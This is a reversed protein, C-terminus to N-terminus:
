RYVPRSIAFFRLADWSGLLGSGSMVGSRGDSRCDEAGPLVGDRVFGRSDPLTARFCALGAAGFFAAGRFCVATADTERFRVM